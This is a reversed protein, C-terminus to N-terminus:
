KCKKQILFPLHNCGTDLNHLHYCQYYIQMAALVSYIIFDNGFLDFGSVPGNLRM